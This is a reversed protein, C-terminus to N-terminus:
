DNLRDVSHVFEGYTWFGRTKVGNSFTRTGFGHEFGDQWQGEYIEGDKWTYSGQADFAGNKWYGRYVDGNAFLKEGYGHELDNHWNGLYVTGDQWTYIGQGHKLGKIMQGEYREGKEYSKIVYNRLKELSKRWEAKHIRGDIDLFLHPMDMELEQQAILLIKEKRKPSIFVNPVFADDAYTKYFWVSFDYTKNFLHEFKSTDIIIESERSDFLEIERLTRYMDDTIIKNMWLSHIFGDMHIDNTAIGNNGAIKEIITRTMQQISIMAAFPDKSILDEAIYALRHLEPFSAKLFEFNSFNM